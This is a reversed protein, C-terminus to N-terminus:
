GRGKGKGKGKGKGGKGGKKAPPDQPVPTAEQAAPPPATPQPARAKVELEVRRRARAIATRLARHDAASLHGARAERSVIGSLASLAGMSKEEDHAAAAARTAAVAQNMREAVAASLRPSSSSGCGAVGCAVAVLTGAAVVRLRQFRM